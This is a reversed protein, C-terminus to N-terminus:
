CTKMQNSSMRQIRMPHRLEACRSLVLVVFDLDGLTTNGGLFESHIEVTEVANEMFQPAGQLKPWSLSRWVQCTEFDRLWRRVRLPFGWAEPPKPPPPDPIFRPRNQLTWCCLVWSLVGFRKLNVIQIGFIESWSFVPCHTSSRKSGQSDIMITLWITMYLKNLRYCHSRGAEFWDSM